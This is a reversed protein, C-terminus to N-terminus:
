LIVPAQIKPPAADPARAYLPKASREFALDHWKLDAMRAIGAALNVPEACEFEANFPRAISQAEYGRVKMNIPLELDMPPDQPDILRPVGQARGYRLHQVYAQGRPAAISVILGPDALPGDADLMAEFTSVGIAPIGLGLALGRAAAVSIRIGTFNGPGIGVAIADLDALTGKAKAMVQEIAGMIREAQGRAMPEELDARLFDSFAAVSVHPMSTDFALINPDFGGKTRM